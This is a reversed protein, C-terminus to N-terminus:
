YHTPPSCLTLCGILFINIQLKYVIFLLCYICILLSYSPLVIDSLWDSASLSAPSGVNLGKVLHCHHKIPNKPNYRTKDVIIPKCPPALGSLFYFEPSPFPLLASLLAAQWFYRRSDMKMQLFKARLRFSDGTAVRKDASKSM